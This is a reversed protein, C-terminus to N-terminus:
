NFVLRTGGVAILLTGLSALLLSRFWVDSIKVFFWCVFHFLEYKTLIGM